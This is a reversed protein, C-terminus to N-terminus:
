QGLQAKLESLSKTGTLAKKIPSKTNWSKEISFEIGYEKLKSEFEEETIKQGKYYYGGYKNLEEEM